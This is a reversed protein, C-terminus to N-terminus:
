VLRYFPQRRLGFIQARAQALRLAGQALVLRGLQPFRRRVDSARLEHYVCNYCAGLAVQALQRSMEYRLRTDHGQQSCNLGRVARSLGRVARSLGRVARSLGRM